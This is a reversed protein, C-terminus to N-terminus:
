NRKKKLKIENKIKWCNVSVVVTKVGEWGQVNGTQKSTYVRWDLGDDYWNCHERIFFIRQKMKRKLHLLLLKKELIRKIRIQFKENM